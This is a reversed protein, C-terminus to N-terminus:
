EFIWFVYFTMVPQLWCSFFLICWACACKRICVRARMCVGIEAYVCIVHYNFMLKPVPSVWNATFSAIQYVLQYFNTHSARYTIHTHTLVCLKWWKWRILRMALVFTRYTRNPSDPWRVWQIRSLRKDELFFFRTSSNNNNSHWPYSWNCLIFMYIKAQYMSSQTVLRLEARWIPEMRYIWKAGSFLSILHENLLKSAEQVTEWMVM